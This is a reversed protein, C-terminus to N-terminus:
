LNSSVKKFNASVVKTRQKKPANLTVSNRGTSCIRESGKFHGVFIAASSM